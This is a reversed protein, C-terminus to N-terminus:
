ARSLWSIPWKLRVATGTPAVSEVTLEAGLKDARYRMNRIGLGTPASSDTRLGDGDDKMEIHVWPDHGDASANVVEGRLAVHRARAHKLVNTFAELFIRQLHFAESAAMEVSGLEMALDWCLQIGAADLRPQLRYRLDALASGASTDQTQMADTAMRLEDLVGQIAQEMERRDPTSRNIVSLLGVLQAGVGDHLERVIRQREEAVLRDRHHTANADAMRLLQREAQELSAALEATAPVDVTPAGRQEIQVLKLGNTSTPSWRARLIPGAWAGSNDLSRCLAEPLRAGTWAPWQTKVAEGFGPQAYHILGSREVVAFHAGPRLARAGEQAARFIRHLALSDLWHPLLQEHWQREQETFVPLAQSRYFCVSSFSGTDPDLTLGTLGCHLGYRDIIVARFEPPYFDRLTVLSRGPAAFMAPGLPDLGRAILSGISDWFGELLGVSSADHMVPVGGVVVGNVWTASTAPVSQGARALAALKFDIPTSARADRYLAVVESGLPAIPTPTM